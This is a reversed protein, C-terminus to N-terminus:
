ISNKIQLSSIVKESNKLPIINYLKMFFVM